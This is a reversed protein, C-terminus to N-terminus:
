QDRVSVGLLVLFGRLILFFLLLVMKAATLVLKLLFLIGQLIGKLITLLAIGTKRIIIMTMEQRENDGNIQQKQRM